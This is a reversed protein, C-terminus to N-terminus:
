SAFEADVVALQKISTPFAVEDVAAGFTVDSGFFTRLESADDKRRHTFNVRSAQLRRNTL